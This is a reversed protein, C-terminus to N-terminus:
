DEFDMDVESAPQRQPQERQAVILAAAAVAALAEAMEQVEASFAVLEGTHPDHANILQLVGIVSSQNNKLPITLFSHARYDMTLDFAKPGSFDYQAAAESYIEAVNISQGSHATYTTINRQNPRGAADYLALPPIPMLEGDSGDLLLGLSINHLLVPDLHEDATRLYLTGADAHCFTQAASLIMRQLRPYDKEATMALSLPIITHALHHAQERTATLDTARQALLTETDRLQATLNGITSAQAEATRRSRRLAVYLALLVAVMLGAVIIQNQTSM